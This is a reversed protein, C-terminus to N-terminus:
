LYTNVEKLSVFKCMQNYTKIKLILITDSETIDNILVYASLPTWNSPFLISILMKPSAVFYTKAAIKLHSVIKRKETIYIYKHEGGM